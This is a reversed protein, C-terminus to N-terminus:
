GLEELDDKVGELLQRRAKSNEVLEIEIPTLSQGPHRSLLVNSLDPPFYQDLIAEPEREREEAEFQGIVMQTSFSVYLQCAEQTLDAVKPVLIELFLSHVDDWDSESGNFICANLIAFNTSWIIHRYKEDEMHLKDAQLFKSMQNTLVYMKKTQDLLDRLTQYQLGKDSKPNNFMDVMDEYPGHVM